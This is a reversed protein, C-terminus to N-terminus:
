DIVWVQIPKSEANVTWTYQILRSDDFFLFLQNDCM